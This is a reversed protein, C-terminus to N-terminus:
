ILFFSRMHIGYINKVIPNTSFQQFWHYDKRQDYTLTQASMVGNHDNITTTDVNLFDLINMNAYTDHEIIIYQKYRKKPNSLYWYLFLNDCCWWMEKGSWESIHKRGLFDYYYNLYDHQSSTYVDCGESHDLISQYNIATLNDKTGHIFIIAVQNSM